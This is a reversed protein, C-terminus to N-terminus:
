EEDDDFLMIYYKSKHHKQNFLKSRFKTDAWGLQQCIEQKTGFAEYLETQNNYVAYEGLFKKRGLISM